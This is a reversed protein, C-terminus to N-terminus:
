DKDLVHDSEKQCHRHIIYAGKEAHELNETLRKKNERIKFEGKSENKKLLSESNLDGECVLCVKNHPERDDKAKPRFELTLTKPKVISAEKKTFNYLMKAVPEAISGFCIGAYSIATLFSVYTSYTIGFLRYVIRCYDPM